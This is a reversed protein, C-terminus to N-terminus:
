CTCASVKGACEFSHLEDPHYCYAVDAFNEHRDGDTRCRLTFVLISKFTLADSHVWPIM